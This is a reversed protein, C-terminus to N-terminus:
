KSWSTLRKECEDLPMRKNKEMLMEMKATAEIPTTVQKEVLQDFIWLFGHVELGNNECFRRVPADGTLVMACHKLALWVVSTDTPSFAKPVQMQTIESIDKELLKHVVLVGAEVMAMLEKRQHEHLELLVYDTTFVELELAKLQGLWQLHILDIFVNTDTVTVKV